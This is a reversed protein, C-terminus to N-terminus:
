QHRQLLSTDQSWRRFSHDPHCCFSILHRSSRYSFHHLSLLLFLLIGVPFTAYCTLISPILIPHLICRKYPPLKVAAKKRQKEKHYDVLM